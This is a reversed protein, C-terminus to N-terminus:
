VLVVNSRGELFADEGDRLIGEFVAEQLDYGAETVYELVHQVAQKFTMSGDESPIIKSSVEDLIVSYHQM